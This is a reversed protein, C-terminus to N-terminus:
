NFRNGFAATNILNDNRNRQPDRWNMQDNMGRAANLASNSYAKWTSKNEPCGRRAMSTYLKATDVYGNVSRENAKTQIQFRLAEETAECPRQGPRAFDAASTGATLIACLIIIRKM